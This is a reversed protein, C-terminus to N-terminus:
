LKLYTSRLNLGYLETQALEENSNVLPMTSEGNLVM